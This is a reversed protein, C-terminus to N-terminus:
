KWDEQEKRNLIRRGEETEANGTEQNRSGVGGKGSMVAIVKGIKSTKNAPALMSERSQSCGACSERTCETNSCERESM